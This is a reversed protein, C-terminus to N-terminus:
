LSKGQEINAAVTAHYEKNANNNNSFMANYEKDNTSSTKHEKREEVAENPSIRYLTNILTHTCTTCVWWCVGVAYLFICM